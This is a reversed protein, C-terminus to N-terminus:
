HLPLNVDSNFFHGEPWKKEWMACSSWFSPFRTKTQMLEQTGAPSQKQGCYSKHQQVPDSYAAPILVEAKLSLDLYCWTLTVRFGHGEFTKGSSLNRLCFHDPAIATLMVRLLPVFKWWSLVWFCPIHVPLCSWPLKYTLAHPTDKGAAFSSIRKRPICQWEAGLTM